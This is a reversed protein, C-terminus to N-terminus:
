LELSHWPAKLNLSKVRAHCQSIDSGLGLGGVGPGRERAGMGAGAGIVLRWARAGAVALSPYGQLKPPPPDRPRSARARAGQRRCPGPGPARSGQGRPRPPARPAAHLIAGRPGSVRRAGLTPAAAKRRDDHSAAPRELNGRVLTVRLNDSVQESAGAVLAASAQGLCAPPAPHHRWPSTGAPKQVRCRTRNGLQVPALYWPTTSAGASPSM